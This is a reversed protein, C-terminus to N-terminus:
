ILWGSLCFGAVFGGPWLATPLGLQESLLLWVAVLFLTLLSSADGVAELLIWAKIFELQWTRVSTIGWARHGRARCLWPCSAAPIGPEAAATAEAASGLIRQKTCFGQHPHAATDLLLICGAPSMRSRCRPIPKQLLPGSPARSQGWVESGRPEDAEGAPLNM